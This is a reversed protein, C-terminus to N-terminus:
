EIQLLQNLSTAGVEGVAATRKCQQYIGMIIKAPLTAAPPLPRRPNNNGRLICCPFYVCM